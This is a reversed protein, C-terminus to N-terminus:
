SRAALLIKAAERAASPRGLAKARARLAELSGNSFLRKLSETLARPSQAAIAGGQSLLYRANREEQGPIPDVIAVPLGVALSEAMTLGGPKGILIDSAGMLRCLSEPEQHSYVQLRSGGRLAELDRALAENRGCLALVHARPFDALLSQAIRPLPGLGRSGGCLFFVQAEQPLRLQRRSEEQPLPMEFAPHVPIGTVHIRQPPIGKKRLAEAVEPTPALYIDVEPSIWYIHAEYDTIVGALRASLGGRKKELALAALPPAHTCVILDTGLEALKSRCKGGELFLYLRRWDRAFKAVSENDYLTAWLGPVRKIVSLYAKALAPGLVPHLDSSINVRAAEGGQDSIAKELALAASAHGSPEYGYVLAVRM